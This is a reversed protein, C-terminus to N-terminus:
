KTAKIKCVNRQMDVVFFAAILWVLFRHSIIHITKIVKKILNLQVHSSSQYYVFKDRGSDVGQVHDTSLFWQQDGLSDEDQSVYSVRVEPHILSAGTSSGSYM